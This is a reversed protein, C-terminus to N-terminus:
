EVVPEREHREVRLDVLQAQVRAVDVVLVPHALHHLARLALARGDADAPVVARDAVALGAVHAVLRLAHDVEREALDLDELVEVEVVDDDAHLGESRFLTTYPFLTSRPPRRIMLFFFFYFFSYVFFIFSFVFLYM